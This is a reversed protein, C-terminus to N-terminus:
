AAALQLAFTAEQQYDALNIFGTININLLQKQPDFGTVKVSVNQVRPEYYGIIKSLLRAITPWNQPSNAEFATFEPAGYMGPLAFNQPNKMLEVYEDRKFKAQTGLLNWFEQEISTHVGKKDLFKQVPTESINEPDLDMLRDFLPVRLGPEKKPEKIYLVNSM